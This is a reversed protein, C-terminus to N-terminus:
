LLAIDQEKPDLPPLEPQEDLEGKDDMGETIRKKQKEGVLQLLNSRVANQSIDIKVREGLNQLLADTPADAM